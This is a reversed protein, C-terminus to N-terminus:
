RTTPQWVSSTIGSKYWKWGLYLARNMEAFYFIPKFLPIFTAQKKWLLYQIFYLLLFVISGCTMSGYVIPSKITLLFPLILILILLFPGIWRIVKHSFFCFAIAGYKPNLLSKFTSLNQFNGASIRIKRRFETAIDAPLDEFCIADSIQFSKYGSKLVMMSEYFDEMLTNPPFNEVLSLRICYAAGFCGITCGFLNGEAEKLENEFSIYQQEHNAIGREASLLNIVRAGVQGTTPENFKKELSQIMNKEFVINADTLLLLTDEFDTPKVQSKIQNFLLNLTASKGSREKQKILVISKPYKIQFTEIINETNDSSCDSGIWVKIKELDYNSDFISQLKQAIVKEENYASFVVYVMRQNNELQNKKSSLFLSFFKLLLPYIVYSHLLLLFAIWFIIELVIM